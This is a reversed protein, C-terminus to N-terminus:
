KKLPWSTKEHFYMKRKGLTLPSLMLLKTPNFLQNLTERHKPLSFFQSSNKRQQKMTYATKHCISKLRQHKSTIKPNPEVLIVLFSKQRPQRIIPNKFTKMKQYTSLYLTMKWPGQLVIWRLYASSLTNVCLRHSISKPTKRLERKQLFSKTSWMLASRPSRDWNWCPNQTLNSPLTM